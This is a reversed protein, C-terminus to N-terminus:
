HNATAVGRDLRMLLTPLLLFDALLAALITISTLLGFDENLKFTSFALVAFGVALILFTTLLAVGVTSIAYRV